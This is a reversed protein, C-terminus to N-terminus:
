VMTPQEATNFKRVWSEFDEVPMPRAVGYGQVLDCDNQRLWDIEGDREAGEAVVVLDLERCLLVTSRVIAANKPTSDVDTVFVRDIKLEHVPLDKVYALSAQGSGYDDIALKIGHAALQELNQLAREPEDMLASETIELCLASPPLQEKALATIVGTMLDSNLLDHTSLNASVVLELGAHRWRATDAVVRDVLWPTIERIFGTQEAFPIFMGPPIMGRVPHRWRILAEAGTIRRSKLDMKPQYFVVFHGHDLAERMEGILSLQEAAPEDADQQALAIGAHRRKASRLANDALRLLKSLDASDDPFRAIGISADLDLRQGAITLPERLVTRIREAAAIAKTADASCLLLAFEDGWLRALLDREGLVTKLREAVGRLLADGVAHGLAKNIASFRDIDLLLLAGFTSESIAFDEFFRARNPLDTLEDVYAIRRIHAEREAIRERMAGLARLMSGIEDHGAPPIERSYDGSAISEALSAAENVPTVIGRAILGGLAAGALLAFLGILVIRKQATEADATLREVDAQMADQQALAFRDTAALLAKLAPETSAEFHGKASMPGGLEIREVTEQFAEGYHTRVQRLAGLTASEGVLMNDTAVNELQLLAQDGANLAEDMAAYMPVRADREATLLLRLLHNAATQAHQNARAALFALRAKRDVLDHTSRSLSQFGQYSLAAVVALLALLLTIALMLRARITTSILPM